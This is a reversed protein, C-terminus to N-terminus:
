PFGPVRWYRFTGSVEEGKRMGLKSHRGVFRNAGFESFGRVFRPDVEHAVAEAGDDINTFGAVEFAADALVEMGGSAMAPVEFELGEDFGDLGEVDM